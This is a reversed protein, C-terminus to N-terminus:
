EPLGRPYTRLRLITKPLLTFLQIKLLYQTNKLGYALKVVYALSYFFGRERYLKLEKPSAFSSYM